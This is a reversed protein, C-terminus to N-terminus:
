GCINTPPESSLVISVEHDSVGLQVDSAVNRSLANGFLRTTDSVLGSQGNPVCSLTANYDDYHLRQPGQM